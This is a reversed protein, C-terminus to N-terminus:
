TMSEIIIKQCGVLINMGFCQHFVTVLASATLNDNTFIEGPNIVRNRCSKRALLKNKLESQTARKRGDGLAIEVTRIDSVMASLQDPELSAKHDPGPM